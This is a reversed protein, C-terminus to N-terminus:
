DIMLSKRRLHCAAVVLVLAVFSPISTPEPVTAVGRPGKEYGGSSFAAVFDSSDFDGDGNWDGEVWTSNNTVGDEYEGASFVVVFDSSNFEGDLNSDGFYTNKLSNVWTTRDNENVNGDKDLDFKPSNDGDRLAMSLIDIDAATLESDADFDGLLDSEIFDAPSMTGSHIRTIEDATLVHNFLAFDDILSDASHQNARGIWFDQSPVFNGAAADAVDGARYEADILEGDVYLLRKQRAATSHIRM